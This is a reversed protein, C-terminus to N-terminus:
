FNKFSSRPSVPSSTITTTIQKIPITIKKAIPIKKEPQALQMLYQSGSQDIKIQIGNKLTTDVIRFPRYPLILLNKGTIKRITDTVWGKGSFFFDENTAPVTATDLVIITKNRTQTDHRALEPYRTILRQIRKQPSCASVLILILILIRKVM